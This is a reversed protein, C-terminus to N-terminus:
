NSIITDMTDVAFYSFVQHIVASPHMEDWFVYENPNPCPTNGDKLSQGMAYTYKLETSQMILKALANSNFDKPLSGSKKRYGTEIDNALDSQTVKKMRLFGGGWCQSTTNIIHINYKKNYIDPNELLNDLLSYVDISLVKASPFEAQFAATMSQLKINHLVSIAHLWDVNGNEKAFPTRGLDPMNILLFYNAGYYKLTRVAWNIKYVVEDTILQMDSSSDSFDYDNAGIWIIFLTHSKDKFLSDLLYTAVQLELTSITWFKDSPMHFVATAGGIGYNSSEMYYKDYYYKSVNEAWTPGNSFRGNFYPPSKPITHLLIQYLKGNDTLSDGFFVLKSIDGAWVNQCVFFLMVLRILGKM